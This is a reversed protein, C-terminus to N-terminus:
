DDNGKVRLVHGELRHNRQNLARSYGNLDVFHVYGKSTSIGTKGDFVVKAEAIPGFKSFYKGLERHGVVWPLNEVSLFYAGRIIKQIASM